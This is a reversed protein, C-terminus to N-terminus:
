AIKTHQTLFWNILEPDITLNQQLMTKSNIKLTFSRNFTTIPIQHPQKNELLIQKAIKAAEFGADYQRIGFGIAAGKDVSELESTCLTVGYQNCLKVLNGMGAIVVNDRLTLIADAESLHSTVKQTIENTHYVAISKVLVHKKKFGEVFRNKLSKLGELSPDYVILVNKIGQKITLLLEIQEKYHLDGVKVGTIHKDSQTVIEEAVKDKIGAFVIPIYKNRKKTIEKVLHTYSAGLTFILDPASNIMEEIQSKMLIRNGNANYIKFEFIPHNSNKVSDIFGNKIAELVPTSVPMAISIKLTKSTTKTSLFSTKTASMIISKSFSGVCCAFLM